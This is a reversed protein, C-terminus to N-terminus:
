FGEPKLQGSTIYLQADRYHAGIVVIPNERRELVIEEATNLFLSYSLCYVSLQKGGRPTRSLM